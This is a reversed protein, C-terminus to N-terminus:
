RSPRRRLAVIPIDRQVGSQFKDFLPAQATIQTWIPQKAAGDYVEASVPTMRRHLHVWAAPNERLNRVWQPEVESGGASGVVAWADDIEYYALGVTHLRGSRRGITTLALPARYRSARRLMKPSMEMGYLYAYPSHGTVELVKADFRWGRPSGLADILPKAIRPLTM